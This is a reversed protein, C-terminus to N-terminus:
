VDQEPTPEDRGTLWSRGVIVARARAEDAGVDELLGGARLRDYIEELNRKVMQVKVGLHEAIGKNSEGRILWLFTEALRETFRRGLRAASHARLREVLTARSPVVQYDLMLLSHDSNQRLKWCIVLRRGEGNEVLFSEDPLEASAPDGVRRHQEAVWRRLTDPLRHSAWEAPFFQALIVEAPGSFRPRGAADVDIAGGWKDPDANSRKEAEALRDARVLWKRFFVLAERDGKDFPVTERNVGFGVLTDADVRTPVRGQINIRMPRLVDAHLQTGRLGPHYDSTFLVGGEPDELIRRRTIPHQHYTETFRLLFPQSDFDPLDIWADAMPADHDWAVRVWTVSDLRVLLRFATAAIRRWDALRPSEFSFLTRVAAVLDQRRQAQQHSM